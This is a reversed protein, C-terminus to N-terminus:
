RDHCDLVHLYFSVDDKNHRHGNGHGQPKDGSSGHAATFAACLLLLALVRHMAEGM